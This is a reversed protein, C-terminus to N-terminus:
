GSQLVMVAHQCGYKPKSVTQVARVLGVDRGEDLGDAHAQTSAEPAAAQAPAPELLQALLRMAQRASALQAAQSVVLESQDAATGDVAPSTSLQAILQRLLEPTVASPQSPQQQM